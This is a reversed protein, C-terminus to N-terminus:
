LEEEPALDHDLRVFRAVIAWVLLMSTLMLPQIFVHPLNGDIVQYGIQECGHLLLLLLQVGSQKSPRISM